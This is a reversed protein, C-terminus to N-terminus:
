EKPPGYWMEIWRMLVIWTTKDPAYEIKEVSLQATGDTLMQCVKEYEELDKSEGLDFRKVRLKKILQPLREDRDTHKIYIMPGRYPLGNFTGEIKIADEEVGPMGEKKIDEQVGTMM